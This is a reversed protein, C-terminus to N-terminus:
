VVAGTDGPDRVSRKKRPEAKAMPWKKHFQLYLPTAMFVSSYTGVALGVLLAIAFDQLSDGGLVALAALIFMAGLGTNVTRPMTDLCAQNAVPAMERGRSKQWQERIRDFVVVTDNVSLGIITLAAALFVGDIPKGLWAFLGLVIIVDHFMAAVASVGFTWKFRIALYLMQVLLAVGFAILAKQRLEDGLSPGILEDRVKDAGDAVGGIAELIEKQDTNSIQGTRVSIQYDGGTGSTQVVANPFGAESVAARAQDASVQQTTSYEM